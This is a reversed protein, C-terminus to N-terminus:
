MGNTTTNTTVTTTTTANGSTSVNMAGNDAPPMGENMPAMTPENMVVNGADTTNAATNNSAGGGCASVFLGAAAITAISLISRM